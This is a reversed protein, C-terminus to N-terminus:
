KCFQMLEHSFAQSSFGYDNWGSVGDAIGFGRETFFYADECSDKQKGMSYGATILDLQANKVSNKDPSIASM